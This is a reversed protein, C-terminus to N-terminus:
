IWILPLLKTKRRFLKKKAYKPLKSLKRQTHRRSDEKAVEEKKKWKGKFRYRIVIYEYILSSTLKERHLECCIPHIQMESVKSIVQDFSDRIYASESEFHKILIKEVELIVSFM